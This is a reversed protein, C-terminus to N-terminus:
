LLHAPIINKELTRRARMIIAADDSTASTARRRTLPSIDIWSQLSNKSLFPYGLGAEIGWLLKVRSNGFEYLLDAGKLPLAEDSFLDDNSM